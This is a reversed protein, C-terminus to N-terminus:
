EITADCGRGIGLFDAFIAGLVNDKWQQKSGADIYNTPHAVLGCAYVSETWELAPCPTGGITYIERIHCYQEAADLILNLFKYWGYSPPDSKFVVLDREPCAYFKSEPFQVLNDEIAVGGLSFFEVPEIEGFSQCGLKRILYDAVTAGLKAADINWGVILAPNQLKPQWSFKLFDNM